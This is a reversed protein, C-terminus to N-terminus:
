LESSNSGFTPMRKVRASAGDWVVQLFYKATMGRVRVKVRRAMWAVAISSHGHISPGRRRIGCCVYAERPFVEDLIECDRRGGKRM